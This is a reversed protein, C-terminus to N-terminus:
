PLAHRCAAGQGRPKSSRAPSVVREEVRERWVGEKMEVIRTRVVIRRAAPARERMAQALEDTSALRGLIRRRAHYRELAHRSRADLAHAPFWHTVQDDEVGVDTTMTPPPVTYMGWGALKWPYVDHHHVLAIQALPWLAVLLLAVLLSWARWSRRPPPTM